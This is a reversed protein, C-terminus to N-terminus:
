CVQNARWTPPLPLYDADRAIATTGSAVACLSRVRAVKPDFARIRMETKDNNSRTTSTCPRSLPYRREGSHTETVVFPGPDRRRHAWFQSGLHPVAWRDTRSQRRSRARLDADGAGIPTSACTKTFIARGGMVRNESM